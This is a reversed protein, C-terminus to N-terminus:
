AKEKFWEDKFKQNARQEEVAVAKEIAALIVKTTGSITANHKWKVIEEAAERALEENTMLIKNQTDAVHKELASLDLKKADEIAFKLAGWEVAGDIGSEFRALMIEGFKILNAIAAQAQLLESQLKECNPCNMLIKNQPSVNLLGHKHTDAGSCRETSPGAACKTKPRGSDGGSRQEPLGSLSWGRHM